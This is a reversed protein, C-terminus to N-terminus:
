AKVFINIRREFIEGTSLLERVADEVEDVTYADAFAAQIDDMEIGDPHKEILSLIDNKVVEGKTLEPEEGKEKIYKLEDLAEVITVPVGEKKAREKAPRIKEEEERYITKALEIFSQHEKKARIIELRHLLIVNPNVPAIAELTLQKEGQWEKIKGIVQVIDGKHITELIATTERFVSGWITDFGDDLNVRGYANDDSVYPDSVVTAVVKARYVKRADDTILYNLEFDGEASVFEGKHIEDITLRQSAARKKM